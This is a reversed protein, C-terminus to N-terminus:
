KDKLKKFPDIKWEEEEAVGCFLVTDINQIWTSVQEGGILYKGDPGYIYPRFEERCSNLRCFEHEHDMLWNIIAIKLEKRM